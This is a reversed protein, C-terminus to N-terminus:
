CMKFPSDIIQKNNGPPLNDKFKIMIIVYKLKIYTETIKRKLMGLSSLHQQHEAFMKYHRCNIHNQKFFIAPSVIKFKRFSFLRYVVINKYEM